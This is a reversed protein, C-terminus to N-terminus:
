AIRRHHNKSGGKGSAVSANNPKQGLDNYVAMLGAPSIDTTFLSERSRITKFRCAKGARGGPKTHGDASEGKQRLQYLVGYRCAFVRVTVGGYSNFFFQRNKM